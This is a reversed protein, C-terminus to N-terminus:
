FHQFWVTIQLHTSGSTWLKSTYLNENNSKQVYFRIVQVTEVQCVTEFRQKIFSESEDSLKQSQPLSQLNSRTDSAFRNIQPPTPHTSQLKTGYLDASLYDSFFPLSSCLCVIHSRVMYELQQLSCGELHFYSKIATLYTTGVQFLDIFSAHFYNKATGTLFSLSFQFPNSVPWGFHIKGNYDLTIKYDHVAVTTALIHKNMRPGPHSGWSHFKRGPTLM